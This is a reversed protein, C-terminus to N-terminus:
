YFAISRIISGASKYARIRTLSGDLKYTECNNSTDGIAGLVVEPGLFQDISYYAEESLQFQMGKIFGSSDTCVMFSHLRM